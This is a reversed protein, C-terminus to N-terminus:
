EVDAASRPLLNLDAGDPKLVLNKEFAATVYKIAPYDGHLLHSLIGVPSRAGTLVIVKDDDLTGIRLRGKAQLFYQTSVLWLIFCYKAIYFKKLQWSAFLDHTLILLNNV